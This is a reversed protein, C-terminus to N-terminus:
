NAIISDLAMDHSLTPIQGVKQLAFALGIKKNKYKFLLHDFYGYGYGLRNCDDDYGILPVIICDLDDLAAIPQLQRPTKIQLQKDMVLDAQLDKIEQFIMQNDDIIRPLFIQVNNKLLTKMIRLTDVEDETSYYIGVKKFNYYDIMNIVKTCIVQNAAERAAKNMSHRALKLKQRLAQKASNVQQDAVSQLLSVYADAPLRACDVRLPQKWIDALALLNTMLAKDFNQHNIMQDYNRLIIKAEILSKNEITKALMSAAAVSIMCGSIEYYANSISSNNVEVAVVIQDICGTQKMHAPLRFINSAMAPLQNHYPSEYNHILIERQNISTAM